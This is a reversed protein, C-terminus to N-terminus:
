TPVIVLVSAGLCVKALLRLMWSSGIMCWIRVLIFVATRSPSIETAVQPVWARLALSPFFLDYSSLPCMVCIFMVSVDYFM